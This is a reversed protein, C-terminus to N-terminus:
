YSILGSRLQVNSLTQERGVVVNGIVSVLSLLNLLGGIAGLVGPDSLAQLFTLITTTSACYIDKRPWFSSLV